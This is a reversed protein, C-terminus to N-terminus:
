DDEFRVSLRERLWEQDAQRNKKKKEGSRRSREQMNEIEEQRSVKETKSNKKRSIFSLPLASTLVASGQLPLRRHQGSSWAVGNNSQYSTVYEFNSIM